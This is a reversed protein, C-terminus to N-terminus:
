DAHYNKNRVQISKKTCTVTVSAGLLQNSSPLAITVDTTNDSLSVCGQGTGIRDINITVTGNIRTPHSVTISFHTTTENFLYAAADSLRVNIKFFSNQCSFTTAMNNWLVFSACQLTSWAMGHFLDNNSICSFIEENEYRKILEPVSEVNVNPLIIYNYDRTYPGLGHDIWVTVTRKTITDNYPGITNYSATKTSVEAGLTSYLGQKQLLYAIKSEGIHIWQVNQSQNSTYPFSYNIGDSLSIINGNFFGITV